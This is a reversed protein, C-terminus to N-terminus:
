DAENGKRNDTSTDDFIKAFRLSKKAMPEENLTMREAHHTAGEISYGKSKLNEFTEMFIDLADGAFKTNDDKSSCEDGDARASNDAFRM